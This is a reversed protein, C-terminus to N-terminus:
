GQGRQARMKSVVSSRAEPTQGNRPAASGTQPVSARSPQPSLARKAATRDHTVPTRANHQAARNPAPRNIKARVSDAAANLMQDPTRIKVRGDAAVAVYAQMAQRINGGLVADAKAPDVGGAVLDKRFEAVLAKNYTLDAIDPDEFLDANADEFVDTARVIMSEVAQVRQRVQNQTMAESVGRTLADKFAAAAEDPDGFQIKEITDRHWDAKKGQHEAPPAAPDDHDQAAEHGPLTDGTEDRAAQRSSKAHQKAEDLIQSAALQKQALKILQADTFDNAEDEEVEALKALEARDKVPVDNGRVKLVIPKPAAAETEAKKAAIMEEADAEAQRKVWPPIFEGFENTQLEEPEVGDLDSQRRAKANAFIRERASPERAPPADSDAAPAEPIRDPTGVDPNPNDQGFLNRVASNEAAIVDPSLATETNATSM